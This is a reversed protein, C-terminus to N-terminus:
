GPFKDREPCLSPFTEWVLASFFFFSFELYSNLVSPSLIRSSSKSGGASVCSIPAGSSPESTCSRSQQLSLSHQSCNGSCIALSAPPNRLPPEQAKVWMRWTGPNVSPLHFPHLQHTKHVRM